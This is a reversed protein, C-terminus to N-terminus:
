LSASLLLESVTVFEYGQRQLEPIFMRLAEATHSTFSNYDHCLIIMGSFPSSLVAETIKEASTGKWDLTDVSWTVPLYELRDVVNSIQKTYVGEPPRFLKPSYESIEYIINETEIIESILQKSSLTKLRPHSYTHNGIEHKEDLERKIIEPCMRCNSGVVFFTAKVGYERLIDLIEPTYREDPGDDFTLAIRKYDNKVTRIPYAAITQALVIVACFVSAAKYIAKKPAQSSM